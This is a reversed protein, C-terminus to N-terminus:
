KHLLKNEKLFCGDGFVGPGSYEEANRYGIGYDFM